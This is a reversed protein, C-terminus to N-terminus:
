ISREAAEDAGSGEAGQLLPGLAVLFIPECLSKISNKCDEPNAAKMCNKVSRFSAALPFGIREM